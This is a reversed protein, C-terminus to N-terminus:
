NHIGYNRVDDPEVEHGAEQFRRALADRHTRGCIILVNQVDGAKQLSKWVMFEERIGDSPVRTEIGDPRNKQDETIGLEDRAKLSMEIPEWRAGSSNAVHEAFTSRERYIEEGIFDVRDDTVLKQLLLRFQERGMQPDNFTSPIVQIRHDGIALIRVKM